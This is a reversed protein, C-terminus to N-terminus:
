MERIANRINPNGNPDEGSKPAPGPLVGNNLLGTEGDNADRILWFGAGGAYVNLRTIGLTHDHYWLTTTPQDNNYVDVACGQGAECGPASEYFTGETEYVAPDINSAVPLWWSEPYGALLFIFCLIILHTL